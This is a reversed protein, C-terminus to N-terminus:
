NGHIPMKDVYIKRPNLNLRQILYVAGGFDVVIAGVARGM